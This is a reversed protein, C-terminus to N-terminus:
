YSTIIYIIKMENIIWDYNECAILHVVEVSNPDVIRICRNIIELAEHFKDLKCLIKAELSLVEITDPKYRSASINFTM